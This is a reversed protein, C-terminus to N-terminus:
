TSLLKARLQRGASQTVLVAVGHKRLFSVLKRVTIYRAGTGTYLSEMESWHKEIISFLQASLAASDCQLAIICDSIAFVTRTNVHAVKQLAPACVRPLLVAPGSISHQKPSIKRGSWKVRNNQLDTTHVLRLAAKSRSRKALHMPLSGRAIHCVLDTTVTSSSTNEVYTRVRAKKVQVIVTRPACGNFVHHSNVGVLRVECKARIADWSRQDKESFLSGSPLVAVVEGCGRLYQLSTLLFTLALSSSLPQGGFTVTEINSGRCSFPPNLLVLDVEGILQKLSRPYPGRIFDCQGIRLERLNERASKLRAASIDYGYLAAEPWRKSAAKLLAGNGVAFDAILRPQLATATIMKSVVADPTDFWDIETM